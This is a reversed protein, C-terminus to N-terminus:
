WVLGARTLEVTTLLRDGSTLPVRGTPPPAGVAECADLLALDYALRVAMLRQGRAVVTEDSMLREAETELRRLDATIRQLPPATPAPTRM